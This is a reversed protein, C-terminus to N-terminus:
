RAEIKAESKRTANRNWFLLGMAYIVEFFVFLIQFGQAFQIRDILIEDSVVVRFTDEGEGVGQLNHLLKANQVAVWERESASARVIRGVWNFKHEVDLWAPIPDGETWSEDVLPAYVASHTTTRGEKDTHEWTHIGKLGVKVVADSVVFANETRQPLENASVQPCDHQFLTWDRLETAGMFSGIIVFLLLTAMVYVSCGMKSSSKSRAVAYGGSILLAPIFFLLSWLLGLYGCLWAAIISALSSQITFHILQIASLQELKRRSQVLWFVIYFAMLIMFNPLYGQYILPMM